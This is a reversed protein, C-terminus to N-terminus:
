DKEAPGALPSRVRRLPDVTLTAQTARMAAVRQLATQRGRQSHQQSEPRRHLQGAHHRYLWTVAPDNYGQTIESLGAFMVVDDDGWGAVWGGLARLVQTRIMLGACHVVWNGEREIAVSNALGPGIPGFPLESPWSTRSGDERLDEAQAIAWHTAPDDFHPVLTRLATPLLYDDQDLVQVLEGTARSLAINRTAAVGLHSGNAEYTIWPEAPLESQMTIHPGDEQVVWEIRWGEPLLQGAVGAATERLHIPDPQYLPTIISIAPM